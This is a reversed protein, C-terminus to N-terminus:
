PEPARAEFGYNQRARVVGAAAAEARVLAILHEIETDNVLNHLMFVRPVWSVVEVTM